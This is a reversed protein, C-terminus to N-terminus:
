PGVAVRVAANEDLIKYSVVTKATMTNTRPDLDTVLRNGSESQFIWEAFRSKDMLVFDNFNVYNNSWFINLRGSAIWISDEEEEVQFTKIGLMMPTMFSIPAFLVSPRYSAGASYLKNCMDSIASDINKEDPQKITLRPERLSEQICKVLFDDEGIAIARGTDYFYTEAAINSSTFWEDPIRESLAIQNFRLDKHAIPDFLRPVTAYQIRSYRNYGEDLAALFRSFRQQRISVTV